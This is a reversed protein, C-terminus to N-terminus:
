DKDKEPLARPPPCYGEINHFILDRPPHMFRRHESILNPICTCRTWSTDVHGSSGVCMLQVNQSEGILAKRPM